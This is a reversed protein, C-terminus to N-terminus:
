LVLGFLVEVNKIIIAKVLAYSNKEEGVRFKGIHGMLNQDTGNLQICFPDNSVNFNFKDWDSNLHMNKM